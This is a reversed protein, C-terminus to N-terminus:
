LVTPLLTRENLGGLIDYKTVAARAFNHLVWPHRSYINFIKDVNVFDLM